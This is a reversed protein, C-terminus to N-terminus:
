LDLAAMQELYKWRSAVDQRAAGLLQEARKPQTQRLVRFRNQQYMFDDLGATPAKSDLQLPNKGQAALSPDFRYLPWFGSDVALKHLDTGTAM